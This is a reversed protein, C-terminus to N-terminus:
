FFYFFFRNELKVLHRLIFFFFFFSPINSDQTLLDKEKYSPIGIGDFLMLFMAVYELQKLFFPFFFHSLIYTSRYRERAVMHWSCAIYIVFWVSWFYIHGNLTVTHNLIYYENYRIYFLNQQQHILWCSGKEDKPYPRNQAFEM